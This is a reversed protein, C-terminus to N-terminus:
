TDSDYTQALCEVTVSDGAGDDGYDFVVEVVAGGDVWYGPFVDAKNRVTDAQATTHTFQLNRDLTLIGTATKSVRAWEERATGGGILITDGAAFGTILAVNLAKQGANSDSTACTTSVAAAFQSILPIAAAPFPAGNNNITRRILCDVGNTLAATGQRGIRVFLYAGRKSRLDITGSTTAGRALTASAVVSVNDTWVPAPM